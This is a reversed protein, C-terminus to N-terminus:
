RWYAPARQLRASRRPKRDAGTAVHPEGSPTVVIFDTGEGTEEGLGQDSVILSSGPIFLQSIRDITDQPIGIRALAQQPTQPPPPPPPDDVPKAARADGRTAPAAKKVPEANRTAAPAQGPLSIVNWRFSSRDTLYEMATFVHTGLRQEPHEITIPANFLPSFDQRVYVKKEKGSVFVSIPTKSAHAIESPKPAPMPVPPAASAPEGLATEGASATKTAENSAPAIPREAPKDTATATAENKLQGPADTAKGDDDTLATRLAKMIPPQASAAPDAAPTPEKHVFLHPDSFDEPRLEQRAIVVRAGLRTLVWLRTAFDHSMRICGHSAPHGLNGGEHMAVGSWTIRQMYPMPAGSYINSHHLISKQVVSFVGMPTPHGPVGTAVLTDTVHAGDSYLHLTQQDISIVIQVPGKRINGFPEKTVPAQATAPLKPKLKRWGKGPGQAAAASAVAMACALTVTGIARSAM